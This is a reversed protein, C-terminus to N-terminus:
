YAVAWLWGAASKRERQLLKQEPGFSRELVGGAPIEPVPIASDAPLYIPLATLANDRHLRLMTKWEGTIPVPGTTRYVGPAVRPLRDVLLGGGQWSTATFWLAGEAGDPPDLRVEVNSRAADPSALAVTGRVGQSGTSLLGFGVLTFIAVAGLVAGIR